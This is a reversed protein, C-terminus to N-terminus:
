KNNVKVIKDIILIGDLHDIEHQLVRSLVGSAKIKVRRGDVDNALVKISEYRKIKFEQDPLSLCGEIDVEVEKSHSIIKPNIIILLPIDPMNQNETEEFRKKNYEIVILRINKGIQPAALGVGNYKFLTEVMNKALNALENNFKKVKVCKEHLKKNPETLIELIM